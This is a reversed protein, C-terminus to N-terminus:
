SSPYLLVGRSFCDCCLLTKKLSRITLLKFKQPPPLFCGKKSAPELLLFWSLQHAVKVMDASFFVNISLIVIIVNAFIRCFFCVFCSHWLLILKLFLM